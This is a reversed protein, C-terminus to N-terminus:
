TLARAAETALAAHLLGTCAAQDACLSRGKPWCLTAGDAHNGASTELHTRPGRIEQWNGIAQLSDPQFQLCSGLTPLFRQLRNYGAGRASEHPLGVEILIGRLLELYRARSMPKAISFPTTDSVQWLDEASLVLAPWMYTATPLAEHKLFDRMIAVLSFGKYLVEPMATAWDYKPRAGKKRSKGQSCCFQLWDENGGTLTSRQFHEFRVCSVASQLLFAVLLQKTGRSNAALLLLNIFEWPELEAKQVGSHTPHHFRHPRILYHETHFKTGMNQEFWKLAQFMSSSATPGGNGVKRLFEPLQLPTPTRVSSDQEEAFRVWRRIASTLAGVSQILESRPQEAPIGMSAVIEAISVRVPPQSPDLITEGDEQGHTEVYADHGEQWSFGVAVCAPCVIRDTDCQCCIASFPAAGIGLRKYCAECWSHTCLGCGQCGEPKPGVAEQPATAVWFAARARRSARREAVPIDEPAKGTNGEAM